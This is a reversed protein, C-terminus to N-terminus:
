PQAGGSSQRHGAALAQDVIQLAENRAQYGLFAERMETVRSRILPDDLAREVNREIESAGDQDKDAQVGLGHFAVRVACGDQDVHRTSYVVMPVGRAICENITAIGGHTIACDAVELVELQPAWRLLLVNAPIPALQEVALKGGLGIVLDWDTRRELVALVRRLFARDASWYSGLSCYVLPRKEPRAARAQRFNRWAALAHQDRLAERRDDEIMPGVYHLDPHPQHPLDMERATLSLVTAHRYLHPRLWQSGDTRQRLSFGRSKALASLDGINVTGSTLPTWLRPLWLRSKLRLLASSVRHRLWALEITWRTAGPDLRTHLPPLKPHRYITFWAIPLLTPLQFRDTVIIAAHLEMDIMLLDPALKEVVGELERDAISEHRLGRRRRLWALFSVPRWTPPRPDAAMRERLRRDRLLPFYRHGRAEVDAAIPAHSAFSVTHGGSALRRALEFSSHLTSAMGHTIYLIKAL